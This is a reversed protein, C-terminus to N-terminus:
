SKSQELLKFLLEARVWDDQNDLDQVRWSPLILPRHSPGFQLPPGKWIENRAWCFQGADHMVRNLDQSRTNFKEPFLMEIEGMNNIFFSREVPYNYEAVALVSACDENKILHYGNVIDQADILPATAYICCAFEFNLNQSSLLDLTYSMVPHIGTNDDSIENPRLSPVEAGYEISVNAIEEDDTSVIIKEFIKSDIAAQISYSIIPKGHFNKINKRPIRKSGGRAPIIAINM